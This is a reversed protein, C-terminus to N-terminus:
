ERTLKGALKVLENAEEITNVNTAIMLGKSSLNEMLIPIDNPDKAHVYICKGAKQIRQLQEIYNVPSLQGDVHNWQICDLEDLSLLTDLHAIQEVGDFHYLSNDTWTLESKLEPLVFENFMDNSFMVSMDCQLQAFKGPSWTNLWGITSGGENNDKVIDFIEQNVKHWSIDIVELAKQVAEPELVMDMLIEETGRLAGLADLNGSTDPQSIFFDGNAEASLYKALELSSKYIVGDPDFILEDTIDNMSPFHWVTNKFEFNVNKFLGAHAVAGLNLFIQPFSDGDFYTNEFRNKERRLIREGDTWYSLMDEKDEYNPFDITKVNSRVEVAVCCRDIIERNWFAEIRKKSMGWDKMYKM